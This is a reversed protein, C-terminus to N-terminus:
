AKLVERIADEYVNKSICPYDKRTLIEKIKENAMKRQKQTLSEDYQMKFLKNELRCKEIFQDESMLEIYSVM